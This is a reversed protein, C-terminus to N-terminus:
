LKAVEVDIADVRDNILKLADPTIQIEGDWLYIFVMDKQAIVKKISSEVILM